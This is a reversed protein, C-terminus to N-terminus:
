STAEAEAEGRYQDSRSSEGIGGSAALHSHCVLCQSTSVAAIIRSDNERTAKSGKKEIFSSVTVDNIPPRLAYRPRSEAERPRSTAKRCGPVLGRGRGRRPRLANRPRAETKAQFAQQVDVCLAYSPQATYIELSYVTDIMTKNCDAM